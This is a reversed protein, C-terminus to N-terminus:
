RHYNGVKELKTVAIQSADIIQIGLQEMNSFVESITELTVASIAIRVNHKQHIIQKIDM